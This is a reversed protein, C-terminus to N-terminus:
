SARNAMMPSMTMNCGGQDLRLAVVVVAGAVGMLGLRVREWSGWGNALRVCLGDQARHSCAAAGGWAGGGIGGSGMGGVWRRGRV